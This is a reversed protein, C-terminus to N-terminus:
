LVWRLLAMKGPSNNLQRSIHQHKRVSTITTTCQGVPTLCVWKPEIAPSTTPAKEPWMVAPLGLTDLDHDIISPGWQFFSFSPALIVNLPAVSHFYFCFFPTPPFHL